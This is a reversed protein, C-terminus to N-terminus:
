QEPAALVLGAAAALETGAATILDASLRHVGFGVVHPDPIDDPGFPMAAAVPDIGPMGRAADMETVLWRLRDAPLVPLPEAMTEARERDPAIQEGAAKRVAVDLPGAAVVWAALRAATRIAFTRERAGRDLAIAASAHTRAATLILDSDGLIGATLRRSTQERSGEGVMALSIDCSPAGEHAETGASSVTIVGAQTGPCERVARALVTELAPSRCINM